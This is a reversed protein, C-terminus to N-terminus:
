RSHWQSPSHVNATPCKAKPYKVPFAVHLSRFTLMFMGRNNTAETMGSMSRKMGLRSCAPNVWETIKRESRENGAKESRPFLAVGYEMAKIWCEIRPSKRVPSPMCSNHGAVRSHYPTPILIVLRVLMRTSHVNKRADRVIMNLAFSEHVSNWCCGDFRSNNMGIMVTRSGVSSLKGKYAGMSSMM